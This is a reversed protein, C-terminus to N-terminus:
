PAAAEAHALDIIAAGLVPGQGNRQVFVAIRDATQGTEGALPIELRLAEGRWAGVPALERVVTIHPHTATFRALADDWVRPHDPKWSVFRLTVPTPKSNTVGAGPPSEARAADVSCTLMILVVLGIRRLMAGCSSQPHREIRQRSPIWRM